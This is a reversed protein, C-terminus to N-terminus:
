NTSWDQCDGHTEDPTRYEQGPLVHYRWRSLGCFTGRIRHRNELHFNVVPFILFCTDMTIKKIRGLQFSIQFWLYTILLGRHQQLLPPTGLKTAVDWKGPAWGLKLLQPRSSKEMSPQCHATFFFMYTLNWEGRYFPDKHHGTKIGAKIGM